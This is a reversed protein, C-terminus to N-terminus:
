FYELFPTTTTTKYKTYTVEFYRFFRYHSSLTGKYYRELRDSSLTLLLVCSEFRVTPTLSVEASNISGSVCSYM